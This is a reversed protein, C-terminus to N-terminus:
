WILSWAMLPTPLPVADVATLTVGAVVGSAGVLRTAVEPLPLALMANVAPALLPM